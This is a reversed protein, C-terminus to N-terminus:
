EFGEAHDAQVQIPKEEAEPKKRLRVTLLGNEYRAQVRDPDIERPLEIRRQFGGSFRESLLLEETKLRYDCPLEGKLQLAKGNTSLAVKDISSLGPLEVIVVLEESTEYMDARPGQFPLMQAMDNWFQDGIAQRTHNRLTKWLSKPDNMGNM